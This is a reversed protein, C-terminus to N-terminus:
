LGWVRPPGCVDVLRSLASFDVAVEVVQVGGESHASSLQNLREHTTLVPGSTTWLEVIFSRNARRATEMVSMTAEDLSPAVVVSTQGIASARLANTAAFGAIPSTPLMVSGLHRTPFTRGLWFGCINADATAFGDDPLWLSLDRAARGPNLPSSNEEYFPGCVAALEGYVPPREPMVEHGAHTFTRLDGTAIERWTVGLDTLLRRPVEHEDCGVVVVDDAVGLEARVFDDRQLGVTGFHAPSDWQFLGKAAWSNFVGINTRAVVDRLDDVVGDRVVGAGALIICRQHNV